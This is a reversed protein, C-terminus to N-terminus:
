FWVVPNQSGQAVLSGHSAKACAAVDSKRTRSYNVQLAAPAESVFNEERNIWGLRALLIEVVIATNSSALVVPRAITRQSAVPLMPIDGTRAVCSGDSSSIVTWDTISNNAPLPSMVKIQTALLCTTQGAALTAPTLISSLLFLVVQRM